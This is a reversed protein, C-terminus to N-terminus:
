FLIFNHLLFDFIKERAEEIIFFMAANADQDLNVTVNMLQIAKPNADVAPQKNLDIAIM